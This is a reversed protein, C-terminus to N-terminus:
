EYPDSIFQATLLKSGSVYLWVKLEISDPLDQSKLIIKSCPDKKISYKSFFAVMGVLVFVIVHL